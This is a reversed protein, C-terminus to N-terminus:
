NSSTARVCAHKLPCDQCRPMPNYNRQGISYLPQDLHWTAGDAIRNAIQHAVDAPIESGTFVRELVRRVHPDAKLEGVDDIQGTDWLAGVIM